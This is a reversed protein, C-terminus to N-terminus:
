NWLEREREAEEAALRAKVPNVIRSPRPPHHPWDGLVSGDWLRRHPQDPELGLVVSGAVVGDWVVSGEVFQALRDDWYRTTPYAGTRQITAQVGNMTPLAHFERSPTLTGALGSVSDNDLNYINIPYPKAQVRGALLSEMGPVPRSAFEGGEDPELEEDVPLEELLM